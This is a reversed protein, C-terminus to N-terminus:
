QNPSPILNHAVASSTDATDSKQLIAEPVPPMASRCSGNGLEKKKQLKRQRQSPGLKALQLAHRAGPHFVGTRFPAGPGRHHTHYAM